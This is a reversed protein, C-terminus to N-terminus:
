IRLHVTQEIEGGHFLRTIYIGRATAGLKWEIPGEVTEWERLVSGDMKYVAVRGRGAYDEPAIFLIREGERRILLDDGEAKKEALSLVIDFHGQLTGSADKELSITRSKAEPKSSYSDTANHPDGEFYLQTILESEGAPTTIKYHIHSPRFRGAGIGYRAPKITSLEYRGREDTKIRGRLRFRDPNGPVVGCDENISYCGAANAQWVEVIAGRLPGRCDSVSGKVLLRDGPEGPLAIQGRFPANSQYYPGLIDASTARCDEALLYPNLAAGAAGAISTQILFERRTTKM